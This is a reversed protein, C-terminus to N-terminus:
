PDEWLKIYENIINKLKIENTEKSLNKLKKQL